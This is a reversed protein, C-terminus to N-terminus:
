IGVSNNSVTVIPPLIGIVKTDLLALQGDFKPSRKVLGGFHECAFFM